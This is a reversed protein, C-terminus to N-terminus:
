ILVYSPRAVVYWDWIRTCLAAILVFIAVRAYMSSRIVALHGCSSQTVHESGQVDVVLNM